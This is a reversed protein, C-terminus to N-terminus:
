LWPECLRSSAGVPRYGTGSGARQPRDANAAAGRADARRFLPDAHQAAGLQGQGEGPLNRIVDDATCAFRTNAPPSATRPATRGTYSPWSSSSQAAQRIPLHAHSARSLGARLRGLLLLLTAAAPVMPVAGPAPGRPGAGRSRQALPLDQRLSREGRNPAGEGAEAAPAFLSQPLASRWPVGRGFPRPGRQGPRRRKPWPRLLRGPLSAGPRRSSPTPGFRASAPFCWPGIM